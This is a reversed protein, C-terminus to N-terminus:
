PNAGNGKKVQNKGRWPNPKSSGQTAFPTNELNETM